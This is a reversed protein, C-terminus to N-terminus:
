EVRIKTAKRTDAMRDKKKELSSIQDDIVSKFAQLLEIQANMLHNFFASHKKRSKAATKMLLCFPCAVEHCKDQDHENQM